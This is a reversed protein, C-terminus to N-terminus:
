LCLMCDMGKLLVQSLLIPVDPTGVLQSSILIASSVLLREDGVWVVKKLERLM